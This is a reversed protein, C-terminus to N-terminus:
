DVDCRQVTIGWVSTEQYPLLFHLAIGIVKKAEGFRVYGPPTVYKLVEDVADRSSLPTTYNGEKPNGHYVVFAKGM